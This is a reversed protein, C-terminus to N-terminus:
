NVNNVLLLSQYIDAAIRESAGNGELIANLQGYNKKMVERKWGGPLIANIESSLNREVLDHQILEKVIERDMILNVLSIFRIKLFRKGVQYNLWGTKYCVVQPVGALATELTATGSTVVAVESSKLLAYTQGYVVKVDRDAVLSSYLENPVSPAGAVVLQYDTYYDAMGLMVPLMRTIEQKRSGPLIAIVPKQALGNRAIFGPPDDSEALGQSVSEVLPNGFYQVRYDYKGYFETEFPFITYMRDVYAKIKKVRSSKWAWVKPSIYYYSRIGRKKLFEAIKLNFGPYDILVVVDPRFELIQRRCESFNRMISVLRVMVEWIGMFNLERYHKLVRAGQSQMLDGGWCVIEAVPDIATLHKVLNSGHLDGSAEGAILFYKM